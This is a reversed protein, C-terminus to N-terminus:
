RASLKSYGRVFLKIYLELSRINWSSDGPIIFWIGVIRMFRLYVLYLTVRTRLCIYAACVSM